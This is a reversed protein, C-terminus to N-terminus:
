QAVEKLSQGLVGALAATVRSYDLRTLDTTDIEVLQGGVELPWDEV